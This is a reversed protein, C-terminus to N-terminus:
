LKCIIGGGFQSEDLEIFASKEVNFLQEATVPFIKLFLVPLAIM